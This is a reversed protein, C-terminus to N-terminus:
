GHLEAYADCQQLAGTLFQVSMPKQHVFDVALELEATDSNIACVQQSATRGSELEWFRLQTISTAVDVAARRWADADSDAAAAAGADLDVVALAYAMQQMLLLGDAGTEAVDVAYGRACLVQTTFAVDAPAMAVLVVRRRRACGWGGEGLEMSWFSLQRYLTLARHADDKHTDGASALLQELLAAAAPFRDIFCRRGNSLQRDLRAVAATSLPARHWARQHDAGGPADDVTAAAAAAAFASFEDDCVDDAAAAAAASATASASAAADAAAAAITAAAEAAAM